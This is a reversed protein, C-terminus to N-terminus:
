LPPMAESVKCNTDRCGGKIAKDLSYGQPSSFSVAQPKGAATSLAVIANQANSKGIDASYPLGIQKSLVARASALAADNQAGSKKRM